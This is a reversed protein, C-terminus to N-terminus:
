RRRELDVGPPLGAGSVPNPRAVVDGPLRVRYPSLDPRPEPYDTSVFQAGSALAKERRAPDNLRAQATDADARTRVLFGARVLKQIRDFDVIPDNVKMWAAAPHDPEVTAFMARGRLSPHDALYLDRIDGENDLAFMVRGRASDLTPWGRSRLAALLSESDGRVRDPTLIETEAFVSRIEADVADLRAKDFPVPITPLAPVADDKLEVLVLIPVHDPHARSWDRVQGLAGVFTPATTLYDMDQIHLVKMGPKRLVGGADPDPGPDKGVARLIARARPEAYHGGAPDAFVDLEIQRVGLRAFQDALPRHTYELANSKERGRAGLLGLVNPHPSVHYSNHSGIVQVQNLRVPEAGRALCALGVLLAPPLVRSM